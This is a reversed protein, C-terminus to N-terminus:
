RLELVVDALLVGGVVPLTLGVFPQGALLLNVLDYHAPEGDGHAAGEGRGEGGPHDVAPVGREVVPRPLVPQDPGQQLSRYDEDHRYPPAAPDSQRSNVLVVDRVPMVPDVM